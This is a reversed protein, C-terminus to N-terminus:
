QKPLNPKPRPKMVTKIMEARLKKDAQRNQNAIRAQEKQSEVALRERELNIKEQAIAFDRQSDQEKRALEQARLQLEAQAMQLQPNQAMQQAQAQQAKQQNSQLLQQAAQSVLRSLQIETTEDLEADPATMPVGMQEEVQRRYEFALHEAIHAMIAASM